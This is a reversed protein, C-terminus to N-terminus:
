EGGGPTVTKELYAEAGVRADDAIRALLESERREAEAEPNEPNTETLQNAHQAM